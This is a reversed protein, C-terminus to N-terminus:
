GVHAVATRSGYKRRLAKSLSGTINIYSGVSKVTKCGNLMTYASLDDWNEEVLYKDAWADTDDDEDDGSWLDIQNTTPKWLDDDDDYDGGTRLFICVAVRDDHGLFSFPGIREPGRLKSQLSPEGPGRVTGEM